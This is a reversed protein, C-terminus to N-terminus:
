GRCFSMPGCTMCLLNTLFHCRLEPLSRGGGGGGKKKEKASKGTRIWLYIYIFHTKVCVRVSNRVYAPSLTLESMAGCCGGGGVFTTTIVVRYSVIVKNIDPIEM